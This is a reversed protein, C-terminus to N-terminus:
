SQSARRCSQIRLLPRQADLRARYHGSVDRMLIQVLGFVFSLSFCRVTLGEGGLVVEAIGSDRMKIVGTKKGYYFAVDRMDAQMQELTLRIKYPMTRSFKVFNHAKLQVIDPFLNRGQLTLNKVVLNLSDDTYKIRPIPIYGVQM